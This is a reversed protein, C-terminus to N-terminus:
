GPDGPKSLHRFLAWPLIQPLRSVNNNLANYKRRRRPLFTSPVFDRLPTDRTSFRRAELRIYIYKKKNNNGDINFSSDNHRRRIANLLGRIIEGTEDTVQM